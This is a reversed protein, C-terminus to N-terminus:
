SSLCFSFLEKWLPVLLTLRVAALLLQLWLKECFFIGPQWHRHSGPLGEDDALRCQMKARQVVSPATQLSGLSKM